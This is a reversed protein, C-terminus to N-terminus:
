VIFKQNICLKVASRPIVIESTNDAAGHCIKLAKAFLLRGGLLRAFM